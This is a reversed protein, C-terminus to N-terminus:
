SFNIICKFLVTSTPNTVPTLGFIVGHPEAVEILNKKPFEEITGVSKMNKIHDWVFETAVMNKLIKDEVAGMGTEEAAMAALQPAYKIGALVM